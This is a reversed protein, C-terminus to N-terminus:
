KSKIVYNMLTAMSVGEPEASLHGKDIIGDKIM